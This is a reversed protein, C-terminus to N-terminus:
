GPEGQLTRGQTERAFDRALGGSPRAALRALDAPTDIDRAAGPLRLVSLPLGARTALACHRAFSDPGFAPAMAGGPRLLLANTGRRDASPALVVGPGAAAALLTEVEAVTMTPLDAPLLLVAAAGRAEAAAAGARFAANLGAEPGPAFPAAPEALATAGAARAIAAAEPDPTVVLAGALRRARTLTALVDELMLRALRERAAPSLAPALRLKAEALRRIAVVAWISPLASAAM